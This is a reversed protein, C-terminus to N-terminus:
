FFLRIIYLRSLLKIDLLRFDNLSHDAGFNDSIKKGYFAWKFNSCIFLFLFLFKADSNLFLEYSGIEFRYNGQIFKMFM